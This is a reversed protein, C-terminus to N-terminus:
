LDNNKTKFLRKVADFKGNKGLPIDDVIRIEIYIKEGLRNKLNKILKQEIDFNYRENIINNVVLELPSVQIIQSRQLGSLGKYATDMRGVYGKEETWLLDDERGIIDEIYPMQCGCPCSSNSKSLIVSDLIDYRILPIKYSRFSTVVLRGIEGAQAKQDKTNLFEFVGSDMNLHLKGSTCETIWPSGESSAYQNYVRCNFAKEITERQNQYLTEATVAIAVPRFSLEINNNLIYSAIVYIASPYGDILKPKYQNLKKIYDTLNSESLHYSSMFLQKEKKNLVWYPPNKKTPKVILRGSFRVKNMANTIGIVKHFRSWLAFNREISEADLRITTPSGSTGSTYGIESLKRKPNTNTLQEFDNRRNDKSLLPLLELVDFPAKIIADRTIGKEKFIKSYYPVYDYGELLLNVLKDKQYKEITTLDAGWLLCFEEYYKNFSPTFRKKYNLLGKLNLLIVKIFYPSRLYIKELM